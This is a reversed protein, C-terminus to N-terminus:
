VHELLRLRLGAPDIIEWASDHQGVSDHQEGSDRQEVAYGAAQLQAIVTELGHPVVLEYWLLRAMDEPPPPVNAGAWLNLGLHHHYGGAALFLAASGYRQMLAFGLGASYFALAQNLDSTHLHIHGMALGPEAGQWDPSLTSLENLIGQLDLPESVMALTGDEFPWQDRPRDRYLEIGHGDPDRLYIAESVGHDSAGELAVQTEVLRRLADGLGLRSPFLLAFHYLGAHGRGTWPRADAQPYLHLLERGHSGLVAHEDNDSLVELGLVNTYFDLSRALDRVILAVRGPRTDPDISNTTDSHSAASDPTGEAREDPELSSM